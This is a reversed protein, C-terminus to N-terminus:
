VLDFFFLQFLRGNDATNGFYETAAHICHSDFLVLRNYINGVVDVVEFETSDLYGNKFVLSHEDPAVKMKKTANSRLLCTGTQVPADPTLFLVGAYQQDDRHYVLQDGAVCIQFCGNTGYKEWNCIKRGIIEEFREKLGEFRYCADTRKGKHNNPHLQFDCSLAFERVADPNTYFNDVIICSQVSRNVGFKKPSESVSKQFSFVASWNNPTMEMQLECPFSTDPLSFEWGCDTFTIHKYVALVDKRELRKPIVTDTKSKIRISYSNGDKAFCWGTIRISEGVVKKEDIYGLISIHETNHM